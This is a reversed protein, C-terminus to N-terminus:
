RIKNEYITVNEAKNLRNILERYAAEQRELYLDQAVQQASEQFSKQRVTEGEENKEVYKEKNARYYLEIDAEKIDIKGQMEEALIKQAMLRKKARFAGELVEKDQDLGKRKASDYLLEEAIFQQLFEKKQEKTSIQTQVYPPLQKLEFDLDGQTIVKDGIKAIIEGPKHEIVDDPKLATEKELIRQADQARQLRELCNVIRKGVDRQLNSEPYLQRIRLYFELARNYDNLREFYINAITYSINARKNNDMEYNNLYEIYERIAADYLENNYYTNALNIKQDASLQPQNEQQCGSM